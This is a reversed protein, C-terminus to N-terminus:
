QSSGYLTGCVLMEGGELQRRVRLVPPGRFQGGKSLFLTVEFGLGVAKAGLEKVRDMLFGAMCSTFVCGFNLGCLFSMPLIPKFSHVGLINPRRVLIYISRGSIPACSADGGELGGTVALVLFQVVVFVLALEKVLGKKRRGRCVWESVM